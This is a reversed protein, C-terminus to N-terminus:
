GAISMRARDLSRERQGLVRAGHATFAANARHRHAGGDGSRGSALVVAGIRRSGDVEVVCVRCANKPTLTDGYCLTPIDRGAATCAALVTSGEPVRCSEGDVTLEILRRPAAVQQETM